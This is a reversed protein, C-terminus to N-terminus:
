SIRVVYEVLSTLGTSKEQTNGAPDLGPGPVQPQNLIQDIVVVGIANKIGDSMLANAVSRLAQTGDARGRFEETKLFSVVRGMFLICATEVNKLLMPDASLQFAELMVQWRCFCRRTIWMDLLTFGKAVATDCTYKLIVCM